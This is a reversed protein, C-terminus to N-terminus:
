AKEKTDPDDWWPSGGNCVNLVEAIAPTNPTRLFVHYGPAIEEPLPIVSAFANVLSNCTDITMLIAISLWPLVSVLNENYQHTPVDSVAALLRSDKPICFGRETEFLHEVETGSHVIRDRFDRLAAFYPAVQAYREAMVKPLGFQEEIEDATRLAAKDKLCVRSFTDPLKREKRRREAEADLLRVRGQWIRAMMEQLLDFVTRCLIILYEIETSAFDTASGSPLTSRTVHFHKLKAISTGMNRFDAEIARILPVIEPWSARQWMVDVFPIFLDSSLQPSKALYDANQVGVIQIKILSDGAPTWSHWQSGDWVPMLNLVRDDLAGVNLHPMVSLLDRSVQAPM